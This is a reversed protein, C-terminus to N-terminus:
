PTILFCTGSLLLEDATPVRVTRLLAINTVYEFTTQTSEREPKKGRPADKMKNEICGLCHLTHKGYPIDAQFRYWSNIRM